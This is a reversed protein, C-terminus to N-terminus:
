QTLSIQVANRPMIEDVETTSVKMKRHKKKHQESGLSLSKRIGAIGSAGTFM